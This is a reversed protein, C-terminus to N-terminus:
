SHYLPLHNAHFGEFRKRQCFHQRRPCDRLGSSVNHPRTCPIRSHLAKEEPRPSKNPHGVSDAGNKHRKTLFKRSSRSFVQLMSSFYQLHMCIVHLFCSFTCAFYICSVHLSSAFYVSLLHVPCACHHLSCACYMCRVPLGWAFYMCFVHLTCALDMCLVHSICAFHRSLLHLMPAFSHLISEVYILLEKCFLHLISPVHM